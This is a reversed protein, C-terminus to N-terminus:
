SLIDDDEVLETKVQPVDESGATQAKEAEAEAIEKGLLEPLEMGAQKFLEAPLRLRDTPM